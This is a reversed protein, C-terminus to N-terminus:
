TSDTVFIFGRRPTDATKFKLIVKCAHWDQPMPLLSSLRGPAEEGTSCAVEKRALSVFGQDGNVGTTKRVEGCPSISPTYKLLKHLVSSMGHSTSPDDNTVDLVMLNSKSAMKDAYAIAPM